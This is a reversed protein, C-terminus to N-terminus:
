RENTIPDLVESLSVVEEVVDEAEVVAVAAEEEAEAAALLVVLVGELAEVGVPGLPAGAGVAMCGPTVPYYMPSYPMYGGYPSYAPIYVPYGWADSYYYDERKPERRGSKRARACAKGYAKELEGAQKNARETYKHDDSPRVANHASIHVSKSPDQEVKHVLANATRAQSGNFLRSAASTHSERTAECYWCTCESYPEDYLRQYTKSTWAFADNLATEAVKDDHDIFQKTNIVTYNLYGYPSLQHTHWALDVDLTPVAMHLRDAMIGVFRQYKTLLRGMTSPLAPSHLWDINHMKEIFSGQRIVAGVLDLAFPSSNEWYRSMMRRIAIKQARDLRTSLSQRVRRMYSRDRLAEEIVGRISTMNQNLGGRNLYQSDVITKGLGEYLLDNPLLNMGKWSGDKHGAVKGPLGDLGFLTGGLPLGRELLLQVDGCFKAAKLRQHTWVTKPCTPCDAYFVPDCYGSGQSLVADIAAPLMSTTYKEKTGYASVTTWPVMITTKCSPCDMAKDRADALNDYPLMTSATFLSEAENDPRYAFTESNICDDVPPLNHAEFRLPPNAPGPECLLGKEGDSQIQSVRAMKADPLLAHLWADFRDVARALYVAWRREAVKALLEAALAGESEHSTVVSNNIGFLGDTSGIQQRLRYFCELLKLHAIVEESSPFDDQNKQDLSLNSFGATIDPPDLINGEEYGPPAYSPPPSPNVSPNREAEAEAEKQKETKESRSFVKSLRSPM